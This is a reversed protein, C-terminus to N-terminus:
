DDRCVRIAAAQGDADMTFMVPLISGMSLGFERLHLTNKEYVKTDVQVRIM